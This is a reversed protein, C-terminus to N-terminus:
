KNRKSKKNNTHKRGKNKKSGNRGYKRKSKGSKQKNKKTRYKKGEVRSSERTRSRRRNDGSEGERGRPPTRSRSRRQSPMDTRGRTYLRDPATSRRQLLSSRSPIRASFSPDNPAFRQKMEIKNFMDEAFSNFNEYVHLNQSFLEKFKLFVSTVNTIAIKPIEIAKDVMLKIFKGFM